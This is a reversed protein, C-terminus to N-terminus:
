VGGGSSPFGGRSSASKLLYRRRRSSRPDSLILKTSRMMSLSRNMTPHHRNSENQSSGASSSSSAATSTSLAPLSSLPPPQSMMRKIPQKNDCSTMVSTINPLVVDDELSTLGWSSRRDFTTVAAPRRLSMTKRISAPSMEEEIDTIGWSSDRQYSSLMAPKRTPLLSPKSTTTSSAPLSQIRAPPSVVATSMDRPYSSIIGDHTQPYSNKPLLGSSAVNMTTSPHSSVMTKTKLKHRRRHNIIITITPQRSTSSRCDQKTLSNTEKSVMIM